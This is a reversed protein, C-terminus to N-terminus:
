RPRMRGIARALVFAAIWLPTGVMILPRLTDSASHSTADFHLFLWVTAIGAIAVTVGFVITKNAGNM